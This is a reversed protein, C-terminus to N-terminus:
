WPQAAKAELAVAAATGAAAVLLALAMTLRLGRGAPRAPRRVGLGILIGGYVLLGLALGLYALRLATV